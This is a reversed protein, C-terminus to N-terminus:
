RARTSTHCFCRPFGRREWGSHAGEWQGTGERMSTSVIKGGAMRKSSRAEKNANSALVNILALQPQIRISLMPPSSTPGFNVRVDNIAEENVNQM